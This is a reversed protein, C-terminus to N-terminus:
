FRVAHERTIRNWLFSRNAGQREPDGSEQRVQSRFIVRSGPIETIPGGQAPDRRNKDNCPSSLHLEM